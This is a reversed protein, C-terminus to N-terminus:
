PHVQTLRVSATSFTDAIKRLLTAVEHPGSYAMEAQVVTLAIAQVDFVPGTMLFQCDEPLTAMADAPICQVYERMVASVADGSAAGGIAARWHAYRDM